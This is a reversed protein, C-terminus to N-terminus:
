VLRPASVGGAAAPSGGPSRLEGGKGNGGEGWVFEVHSADIQTM